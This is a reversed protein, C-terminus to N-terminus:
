LTLVYGVGNLKNLEKTVQGIHFLLWFDKKDDDSAVMTTFYDYSKQELKRELYVTADERKAALLLAQSLTLPSNTSDAQAVMYFPLLQLILYLFYPRLM